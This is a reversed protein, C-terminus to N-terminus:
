IRTDPEFYGYPLSNLYCLYEWDGAADSGDMIWRLATRRDRAGCTITAEVRQEFLRVAEAEMAQRLAERHAATDILSSWEEQRQDDTTLPDNWWVWFGANPRFGYAEKHLDSVVDSDFTYTKSM